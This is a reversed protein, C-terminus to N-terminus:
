NVRLAVMPDIGRRLNEEIALELLEAMESDLERDLESNRFFSQLRRVSEESRENRRVEVCVRPEAEFKALAAMCEEDEFCQPAFGGFTRDAASM